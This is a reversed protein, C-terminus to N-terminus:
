PPCYIKRNNLEICYKNNINNINNTNHILKDFNHIINQTTEFSGKSSGNKNYWKIYEVM